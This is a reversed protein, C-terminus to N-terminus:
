EVAEYTAEFIDPKCPYLEHKIGRIIWDDYTVRLPGELTTIYIEEAAGRMCWFAGVADSTMNWAEHLWQPWDVNNWRRDRTMQVAEIVVPKKRDKM